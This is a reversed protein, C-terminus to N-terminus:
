FIYFLVEGGRNLKLLSHSDYIGKSTTLIFYGKNNLHFRWLNEVSAYVRGGSKSILNLKKICSDGNPEYKLLVLISKEDVINYGRIYGLDQLINLLTIVKKSRPVHVYLLKSRFGNKLRSLFDNLM